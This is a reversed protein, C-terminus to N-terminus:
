KKKRRELETKLADKKAIWMELAAAATENEVGKSKSDALKKKQKSVQVEASKLRGLLDVDSLEALNEAEEMERFKAAKGLIKGTTRYHELEDWIERNKLYNEVVSECQIAAEASDSDGMVQLRAHATKYNGYATFLDSVLIKLIDPCDPSNLFKYKERFRIMKKVTEPAEEYKPRLEELDPAEDGMSVIRERFDPDFLDDVSVGLGDAIEILVSDVDDVATVESSSPVPTPKPSRHAVRPLRTFETETLGSLKRLENIMIERTTPSTYIAFQRKLRLNVGYRSYLAAGESFDRPGSLYAIIKQKDAANM